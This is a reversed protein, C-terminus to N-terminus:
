ILDDTHYVKKRKKAKKCKCKKELQRYVTLTGEANSQWEANHYYYDGSCCVFNFFRYSLRREKRTSTEVQILNERTPELYPWHPTMEDLKLGKLVITKGPKVTGHSGCYGRYGKEMSNPEWGPGVYYRLEERGTNEIIVTYLCPHPEESLTHESNDDVVINRPDLRKQARFAQANPSVDNVSTYGQRSFSRTKPSLKLEMIKIGDVSNGNPGAMVKDSMGLMMVFAISLLLTFNLIKNM